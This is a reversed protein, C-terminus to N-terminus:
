RAAAAPGTLGPAGALWKLLARVWAPAADDGSVPPPACRGAISAARWRLPAYQPDTLQRAIMTLGKLERLRVGHVSIGLEAGLDRFTPPQSAFTRRMLVLRYRADVGNLLQGALVPLPEPASAPVQGLLPLLGAAQVHAWAAAVDAPFMGAAAVAAAIGAATRAGCEAAAWAAVLQLSRLGGAPLGAPEIGCPTDGAPRPPPRPRTAPLNLESVAQRM